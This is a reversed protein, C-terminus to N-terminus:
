GTQSLHSSLSLSLPLSLSPSPSPLSPSLSLPSLTYGACSSTCQPLLPNSPNGGGDKRPYEAFAGSTGMDELILANRTKNDRNNEKKEKSQKNYRPPYWVYHLLVSRRNRSTDMDGLLSFCDCWIHVFQREM